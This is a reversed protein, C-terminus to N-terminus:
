ERGEFSFVLPLQPDSESGEADDLCGGSDGSDRLASVSFVSDVRDYMEHRTLGRLTLRESEPDFWVVLGFPEASAVRWSEVPREDM